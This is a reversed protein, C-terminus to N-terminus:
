DSSKGGKGNDSGEDRASPTEAPEPADATELPIPIWAEPEVAAEAQTLPKFVAKPKPDKRLALRETIPISVRGRGYCKLCTVKRWFRPWYRKVRLGKCVPCERTTWWM